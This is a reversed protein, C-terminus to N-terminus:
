RAWLIGDFTELRIWLFNLRYLGMM